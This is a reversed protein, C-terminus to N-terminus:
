RCREATARACNKERRALDGERAGRWAGRSRLRERPNDDVRADRLRAGFGPGHPARPTPRPRASLPLAVHGRPSPVRPQSAVLKRPLFCLAGFIHRMSLDLRSLLYKEREPGSQRCRTDSARPNSADGDQRSAVDRHVRPSVMQLRKVPVRVACHPSRGQTNAAYLCVKKAPARFLAICTWVRPTAGRAPRGRTEWVSTVATGRADSVPKREHANESASDDVLALPDVAVQVGCHRTASAADNTVVAEASACSHVGRAAVALVAASAGAQAPADLASVCM